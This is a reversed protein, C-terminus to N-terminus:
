EITVSVIDINGSRLKDDGYCNDILFQIVNFTEGEFQEDVTAVFMTTEEAPIDITEGDMFYGNNDKGNNKYLPFFMNNNADSRDDPTRGAHFGIRVSETGNNRIVVSVSQGVEMEITRSVRPYYANGKVDTYTINREVGEAETITYTNLGGQSYEDVEYEGTVTTAERIIMEGDKQRRYTDYYDPHSEILLVLRYGNEHHDGIANLAQTISAEITVINNEDAKFEDEKTTDYTYIAGEYYVDYEYEVGESVHHSVDGRLLFHINSISLNKSSIKNEFVFKLGNHTPDIEIDKEIFAWEGAQSYKVGTLNNGASYLTYGTWAQTTWGNVTSTTDGTDVGPNELKAGEPIEKSFWVDKFYFEGTVNIGSLGIEPFICVKTLLDMRNKYTGKVKLTHISYQENLSFSTDNGLCNSKELDVNDYVLRFTIGKGPTGKALINIYTFDAFRGMVSTFLHTYEYNVGKSYSVKTEEEGEEVEILGHDVPYWGKLHFDEGDGTYHNNVEERDKYPDYTKTNDNSSACGSLLLAVIFSLFLKKKM